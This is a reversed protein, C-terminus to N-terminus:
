VEMRVMELIKVNEGLKAISEQILHEVTKQSDRIWTQALLESIDVPAMAAVQMAIERGLTKFDDTRAVFDTECGLKVLVAVKGTQHVYSVIAGETTQRDAKKTARSVAHDSLWVRAKVIDGHAETLAQRADMVGVGTEERLKKILDVPIM